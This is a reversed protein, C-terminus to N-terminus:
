LSQQLSTAESRFSEGACNPWLQLPTATPLPSCDRARLSGRNTRVEFVAGRKKVSTVEIQEMLRAGAREAALALGWVYKAPQLSCGGPDLLAGHYRASGIERGLDAPALLETEYRLQHRMFHASQELAPMHSPKAALTLAGCRSFDCAIKEEVILREILRMADLSLQFMRKARDSGVMGALEKM